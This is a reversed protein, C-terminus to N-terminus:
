NHFWKLAAEASFNHAMGWDMLFIFGKLILGGIVLVGFLGGLLRPVDYVWLSVLGPTYSYKAKTLRAIVRLVVCAIALILLTFWM